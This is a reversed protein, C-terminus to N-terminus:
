NRGYIRVTVTTNTTCATKTTILRLDRVPTAVLNTTAAYYLAVTPSNTSVYQQTIATVKQYGPPRQSLGANKAVTYTDFAEFVGLDSATATIALAEPGDNYIVVRDIDWAESTVPVVQTHCATAGTIPFTYDTSQPGAQATFASAGVIAAVLAAITLHKLM